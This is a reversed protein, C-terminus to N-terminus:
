KDLRPPRKQASGRKSEERQFMPAEEFQDLMRDDQGKDVGREDGPKPSAPKTEKPDNKKGDDPADGGADKPADKQGGDQGPGDPEADRGQDAGGDSPGEGGGDGPGGEGAESPADSAGDAGGDKKKEEEKFRLALARNYAADVGILDGADPPLGPVIILAKEYDVVAKDYDRDLFAVNGRLYRARAQLDPPLEHKLIEDLLARACDINDGRLRALRKDEPADVEEKKPLPDDLKRGYLEGLRFLTLALDFTAEAADAKGISIAGADCAGAGLYASLREAAKNAKGGDLETVAKDVDPAYREFPKRPDWGCAAVLLPLALGLGVSWRLRKRM